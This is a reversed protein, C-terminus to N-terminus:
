AIPPIRASAMPKPFVRVISETMMDVTLWAPWYAAPFLVLAEALLLIGRLLAVKTTKVDLRLNAHVM